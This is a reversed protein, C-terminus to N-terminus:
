LFRKRAVLEVAKIVGLTFIGAKAFRVVATQVQDIKSESM